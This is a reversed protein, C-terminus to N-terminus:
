PPPPSPARRRCLRDEDDLDPAALAALRCGHAVGARDGGVILHEVRDAPLIADDATGREVVEHFGRKGEALAAQRLAIADGHGTIGAAGFAEHEIVGGIFAGLHRRERGLGRAFSGPM